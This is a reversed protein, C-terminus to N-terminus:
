AVGNEWCGRGEDGVCPGVTTSKSVKEILNHYRAGKIMLSTMTALGGGKRPTNGNGEKKGPSFSTKGHAFARVWEKKGLAQRTPEDM